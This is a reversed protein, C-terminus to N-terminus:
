NGGGPEVAWTGILRRDEMNENGPLRSPRIETPTEGNGNVLLWVAGILGVVLAQVSVFMPFSLSDFTGSCLVAALEAGALAACLDRLAPDTTRRRTVLAAAAPWILYFLFAALGILGLEISITLYENDLIHLQDQFFYTGGGQGVWPSQRVAQEVFPYNNVRHAISNDSTGALFLALLKGILGHATMFVGAVAV